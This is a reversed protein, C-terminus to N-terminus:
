FSIPTYAFSVPCTFDAQDLKFQQSLNQQSKKVSPFSRTLQAGVEELTPSEGALAGPVTEFGHVLAMHIELEVRADEAYDNLRETLLQDNHSRSTRSSLGM